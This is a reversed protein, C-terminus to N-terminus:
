VGFMCRSDAMGHWFLFTSGAMGHAHVCWRVLKGVEKKATVLRKEVREKNEQSFAVVHTAPVRVDEARRRSITVGRTM